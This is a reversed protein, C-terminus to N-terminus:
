KARAISMRCFSHQINWSALGRMSFHGKGFQSPRCIILDQLLRYLIHSIASSTESNRCFTQRQCTGLPHRRERHVKRILRKNRSVHYHLIVHKAGIDTGLPLNRIRGWKLLYSTLLVRCLNKENFYVVNCIIHHGTNLNYQIGKEVINWTEQIFNM